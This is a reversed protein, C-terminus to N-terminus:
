NERMRKKRRKGEEEVRRTSVCDAHTIMCWWFPTSHSYSTLPSLSMFMVNDCSTGM